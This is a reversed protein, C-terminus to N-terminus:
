PLAPARSVSVAHGAAACAKQVEAAATDYASRYASGPEVILLANDPLAKAGASMAKAVTGTATQAAAELEGRLGSRLSALEASSTAASREASAWGNAAKAWGTCAAQDLSAQGTCATATALVAVIAAAGAIRLLRSNRM